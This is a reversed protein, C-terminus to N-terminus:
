RSLSDFLVEDPQSIKLTVDKVEYLLNDLEQLAQVSKPNAACTPIKM